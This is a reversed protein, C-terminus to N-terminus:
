LEEWQNLDGQVSESANANKNAIDVISVNVHINEANSKPVNM